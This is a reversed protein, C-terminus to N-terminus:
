VAIIRILVVVIAAALLVHIFGGLAYSSGLGIAWLILLLVALTWLMQKRGLEEHQEVDARSPRLNVASCRVHRLRCHCASLMALSSARRGVCM